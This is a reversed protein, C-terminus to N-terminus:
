PKCKRCPRYNNTTAKHGSTFYIRNQPLPLSCCGQRHFVHTRINGIYSPSLIPTLSTILCFIVVGIMLGLILIMLLKNRKM